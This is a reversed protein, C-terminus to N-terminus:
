SGFRNAGEVTVPGPFTGSRHRRSHGSGFRSRGTGEVTAEVPVSVISGHSWPRIRFLSSRNRPDHGSEFCCCDTGMFRAENWAPAMPGWPRPSMGLQLSRNGYGRGSESCSCERHAHPNRHIKPGRAPCATELLCLPRRNHVDRRGGPDRLPWIRPQCFTRKPTCEWREDTTCRDSEHEPM